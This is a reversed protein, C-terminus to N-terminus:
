NRWRFWTRKWDKQVPDWRWSPWVWLVLTFLAMFAVFFLVETM